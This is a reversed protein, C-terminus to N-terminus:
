GKQLLQFGGCVAHDEGIHCCPDICLDAIHGFALNRYGFPAGCLCGGTQGTMRFHFEPEIELCLGNFIYLPCDGGFVDHGTRGFAHLGQIICIRLVVRFLPYGKDTLKKLIQDAQQVTDVSAVQLTYGGGSPSSTIGDKEDAVPKGASASATVQSQDSASEASETNVADSVTETKTEPVVVGSENSQSTPQDTPRLAEQKEQYNFSEVRAGETERASEEAPENQYLKINEERLRDIQERKEESIATAEEPNQIVRPTLFIYLNTKDNVNSNQSFLFGLGPIDGLCPVKYKTKDIQDDILGGLVVTYKDRVIATTEVTRKLTTPQATQAGSIESVELSIELRVM